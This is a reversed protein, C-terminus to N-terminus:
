SCPYKEILQKIDDAMQLLDKVVNTLTKQQENNKKKNKLKKVYSQLLKNNAIKNQCSSWNNVESWSNPCTCTNKAM